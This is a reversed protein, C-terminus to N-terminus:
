RGQKVLVLPTKKNNRSLNSDASFSQGLASTKESNGNFVDSEPHAESTSTSLMSLGSAFSESVETLLDDVSVSVHDDNTEGSLLNQLRKASDRGRILTQVLINTDKEM